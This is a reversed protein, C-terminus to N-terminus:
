QEEGLIQPVGFRGAEAAPAAALAEAQTLGPRIVDERFVNAVDTVHAMQPIDADAFQSVVSLAQIIPGFQAAYAAIDTEALEIVALRALHAVEDHTITPGELSDPPPTASSSM